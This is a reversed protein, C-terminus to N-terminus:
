LFAIYILLNFVLWTKIKCIIYTKQLFLQCKSVPISLNESVVINIVSNFVIKVTPMLISM